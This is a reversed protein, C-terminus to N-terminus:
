TSRRATPKDHTTPQRAPQAGRVVIARTGCVRACGGCADCKSWDVKLYTRGVKLAGRPCATVCNGCADCSRPDLGLPPGSRM